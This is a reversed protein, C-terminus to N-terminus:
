AKKLDTKIRAMSYIDVFEGNRFATDKHQGEIVFGFKKYLAIAAENDIYVEIGIRHINLWNDCLDVAAALLKSGVGKGLVSSCVGMGFDAVHKKRINSSASLGLQGVVRSDIEAVLNHYSEDNGDFRKQWMEESPNPLQLTNEYAHRQAYLNKIAPVDSKEAARIIIDM